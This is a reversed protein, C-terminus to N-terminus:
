NRRFDEHTENGVSIALCFLFPRTHPFRKSTDNNLCPQLIPTRLISNNPAPYCQRIVLSERRNRWIDKHTEKGDSIAFYFLFPHAYPLRWSIKYTKALELLPHVCFAAKHGQTVIAFYLHNGEIGEFTKMLKKGMVFLSVPPSPARTRFAGPFTKTKTLGLFHHARFATIQRRTVRVFYSHDGDIEEFLQILKEEM